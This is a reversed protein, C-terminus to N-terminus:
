RIHSLFFIVLPIFTSFLTIYFSAFIAFQISIIGYVQLYYEIAEFMTSVVFLSTLVAYFLFVIFLKYNALGVCNNLLFCHHDLKLHCKRCNNCHHSRKIRIKRCFLCLIKRPKKEMFEIPPFEM